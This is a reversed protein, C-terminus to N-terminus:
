LSGSSYAPSTFTPIGIRRSVAKALAKTAEEDDTQIPTHTHEVQKTYSHYYLDSSRNPRTNRRVYCHQVVDLTVVLVADQRNGETFFGFDLQLCDRRDPQKTHYAQRAKAAVCTKCWARFPLHTLEHEEREHQSPQRPVPLGRAPQTERLQEPDDPIAEQVEESEDRNSFETIGTWRRTENELEDEGKTWDDHHDMMSGDSFQMITRRGRVLTQPPGQEKPRQEAGPRYLRTRPIVHHRKWKGDVNEWYDHKHNPELGLPTSPQASIEHNTATTTMPRRATFPEDILPKHRIKTTGRWWLGRPACRTPNASTLWNDDITEVHGDEYEITTTRQGLLKEFTIPMERQERPEFLAKRWKRHVRILYGNELKWHDKDTRQIPGIYITKPKHPIIHYVFGIHKPPTTREPPLRYMPNVYLLGRHTTLEIKVDDKVMFRQKGKLRISWGSELLRVVSLIPRDADCVVYDVYLHAKRRRDTLEYGVTRLGYTQMRQGNAIRLHCTDPLPRIPIEDAYHKPCVNLAAGSDFLLGDHKEPDFFDTTSSRTFAGVMTDEIKELHHISMPRDSKEVTGLRIM